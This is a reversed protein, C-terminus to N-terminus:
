RNYIRLATIIARPLCLASLYASVYQAVRLDRANSVERSARYFPSQDIMGAKARTRSKKRRADIDLTALPISISISAISLLSLRCKRRTETVLVVGSRELDLKAIRSQYVRLTGSPIKLARAYEASASCSARM